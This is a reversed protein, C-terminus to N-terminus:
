ILNKWNTVMVSSINATMILDSGTDRSILFMFLFMKLRISTPLSNKATPEMFIITKLGPPNFFGFHSIEM